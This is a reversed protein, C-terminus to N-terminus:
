ISMVDNMCKKISSNSFVLSAISGLVVITLVGWLIKTEDIKKNKWNTSLIKIANTINLSLTILCLILTILPFIFLFIFSIVSIILSIISIKKIRELFELDNM